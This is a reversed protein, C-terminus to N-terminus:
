PLSVAPRGFTAGGDAATPPTTELDWVQGARLDLQQREEILPGNLGRLDERTQVYRWRGPEVDLRHVSRTPPWDASWATEDGDDVLAVRALPEVVMVQVLARRRDAKEDGALVVVLGRHRVAPDFSSPDSVLRASPHLGAARDLPRWPASVVLSLLAM